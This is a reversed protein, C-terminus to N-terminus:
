TPLDINGFIDEGFIDELVKKQKKSATKYVTVPDQKVLAIRYTSKDVELYNVDSCDVKKQKNHKLKDKMVDKYINFFKMYRRKTQKRNMVGM